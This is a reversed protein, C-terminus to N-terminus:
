RTTCVKGLKEYMATLEIVDLAGNMDRDFIAFLSRVKAIDDKSVDKSTFNLHQNLRSPVNSRSELTVHRSEREHIAAITPRSNEGDIGSKRHVDKWSWCWWSAAQRIM